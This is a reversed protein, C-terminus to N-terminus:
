QLFNHACQIESLAVPIKRNNCHKPSVAQLLTCTPSCHAAHKKKGMCVSDPNPYDHHITSLLHIIPAQNPMRMQKQHHFSQVWIEQAPSGANVVSWNNNNQVRSITTFINFFMRSTLLHGLLTQGPDNTSM